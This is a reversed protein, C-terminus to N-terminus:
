GGTQNRGGCNIRSIMSPVAAVALYITRLDTGAAATSIRFAQAVEMFRFFAARFRAAETADDPMTVAM